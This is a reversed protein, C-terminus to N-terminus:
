GIRKPKGGRFSYKGTTAGSKSTSSTDSDIIKGDIKYIKAAKEYSLMVPTQEIVLEDFDIETGEVPEVTEWSAEVTVVGISEGLVEDTGIQQEGNAMIKVNTNVLEAIKKENISFSVFRFNAM